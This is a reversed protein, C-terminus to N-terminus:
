IITSVPIVVIIEDGAMLRVIDAPLLRKYMSQNASARPSVHLPVVDRNILMAAPSYDHSYHATHGGVVAPTPITSALTVTVRRKATPISAAAPTVTARRKAAPTASKTTDNNLKRKGTSNAFSSKLQRGAAAVASSVNTSVPSAGLCIDRIM